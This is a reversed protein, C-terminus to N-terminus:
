MENVALLVLRWSSAFVSTTPPVECISRSLREIKSKEHRERVGLVDNAEWDQLTYFM